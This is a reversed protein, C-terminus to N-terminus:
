SQLTGNAKLVPTLLVTMAGHVRTGRRYCGMLKGTRERVNRTMMIADAACTPKISYISWGCLMSEPCVPTTLVATSFYRDRATGNANSM